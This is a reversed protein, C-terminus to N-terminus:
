KVLHDHLRHVPPRHITCSPGLAILFRLRYLALKDLESMWAEITEFPIATVEPELWATAENYRVALSMAKSDMAQHKGDRTDQDSLLSAYVMVRDIRAETKDRRDLFQRLTQADKALTGKAKALEAIQAELAAYEVQWAQRNPFIDDTNWLYQTEIESREPVKKIEKATVLSGPALVVAVAVRRKWGSRYAHLSM